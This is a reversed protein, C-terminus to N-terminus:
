AQQERSKDDFKIMSQHYKIEIYDLLVWMFSNWYRRLFAIVGSAILAIAIYREFHFNFLTINITEPCYLWASGFAIHMWAMVICKNAYRIPLVVFSVLIGFMPILVIQILHVYHYLIVFGLVILMLVLYSAMPGKEYSNKDYSRNGWWCWVVGRWGPINTHDVNIDSM